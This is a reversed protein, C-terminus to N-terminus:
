KISPKGKSIKIGKNGYNFMIEIKRCEWKKIFIPLNKMLSLRM